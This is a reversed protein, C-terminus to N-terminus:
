SIARLDISIVSVREKAWLLMPSNLPPSRCLTKIARASAWSGCIMSRSSGVAKRSM